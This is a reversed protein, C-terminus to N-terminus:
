FFLIQEWLSCIRKKYLLDRTQISTFWNQFVQSGQFRIWERQDLYENDANAEFVDTNPLIRDLIAEGVTACNFSYGIHFSLVVDAGGWLDFQHRGLKNLRGMRTHAMTELKLVRSFFDVDADLLQTVETVFKVMINSLRSLFSFCFYHFKPFLSFIALPFFSFKSFNGPQTDDGWVSDTKSGYRGRPITM